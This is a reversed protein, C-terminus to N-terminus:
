SACTFCSYIEFILDNLGNAESNRPGVLYLINRCGQLLMVRLKSGRKLVKAPLCKAMYHFTEKEAEARDNVIAKIDRAM